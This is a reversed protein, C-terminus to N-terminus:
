ITSSFLQTDPKKALLKKDLAMCVNRVYTRGKETVVLGDDVREILGDNVMEDLRDEFGSLAQKELESNTYQTKFQCMLNLIHQKILLDEENLKHGRFIALEGSNIQAYYQRISKDNQGYAYWVDSISSVGLGILMKTSNSTYGMFNRHLTGEVFGRYLKDDPLSFHDMGVELYGHKELLGRGLEYLERKESGSPLDMDTFLRQIKSVWPVHAYSYYAIRDPKLGSVLDFTDQISKKTQFPLGDILDYNISNFGVELAIRHVREVEEYTQVRNIAKQVVPDFDQIGLSIRNFGIDALARLQEETTYNPHVEISFEADEIVDATSTIANILTTLNESSFFTPTGGGLHIENILPKGDFLECYMRWEELLATIYPDEVKHNKTIFKNCGCFTCLQECYPLHIYIGMGKDSHKSFSNKVIDKWEEKTPADDWYPVTPYSTYRPGPVNYKRLLDVNEVKM